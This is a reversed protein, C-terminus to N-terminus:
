FCVRKHPQPILVAPSQSSITQIAHRSRDAALVQGPDLILTLPRIKVALEAHINRRNLTVTVYTVTNTWGCYFSYYKRSTNGYSNVLRGHRRTFILPYSSGAVKQEMSGKGVRIHGEQRPTSGSRLIYPVHTKCVIGKKLKIIEM